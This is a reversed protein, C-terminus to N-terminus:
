RPTYDQIYTSEPLGGQERGLGGRESRKSFFGGRGNAGDDGRRRWRAEFHFPEARPQPPCGSAPAVLVAVLHADRPGVVGGHTKPEGCLLLGITQTCFVFM